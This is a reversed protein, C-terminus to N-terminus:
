LFFPYSVYYLLYMGQAMKGAGIFSIKDYVGQKKNATTSFDQQQLLIIAPSSPSTRHLSTVNSHPPYFAGNRGNISSRFSRLFSSAIM